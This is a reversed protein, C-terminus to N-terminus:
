HIKEQFFPYKEIIEKFTGKDIIFELSYTYCSSHTITYIDDLLVYDDETYANRCVPCLIRLM